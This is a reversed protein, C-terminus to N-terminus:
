RSKFRDLMDSILARHDSPLAGNRKHNYFKGYVEVVDSLNTNDLRSAANAIDKESVQYEVDLIHSARGIAQRFELEFRCGVPARVKLLYDSEPKSALEKELSDLDKVCITELKKASTILEQDVSSLHYVGDEDASFEAILVARPDDGDGFTTFTTSGPFYCPVESKPMQQGKHVHGFAGYDMFSPVMTQPVTYADMVTLARESGGAIAADLMAHGLFVKPISINEAPACLSAADAVVTSAYDIKRDIDESEQALKVVSSHPVWPMAAVFLEKGGNKIIFSNEELSCEDVVVNVEHRSLLTRVESLRAKSDHNGRVIVGPMNLGLIFDHFLEVAWSPPNFKDYVDGAHVFFDCERRCAIDQIEQLVARSEEERKDDYLTKGLHTDSFHIVRINPLATM